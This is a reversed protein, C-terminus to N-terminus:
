LRFCFPKPTFVLISRALIVALMITGMTVHFGHFGTLLFFTAGYIGSNLTLGLDNYAHAYEDAQLGVFIVGLGVTLALGSILQRRNGQYAGLSGM